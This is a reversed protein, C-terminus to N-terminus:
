GSAPTCKVRGCWGLDVIRQQNIGQINRNWLCSDSADCTPKTDYLSCYGAYYAPIGVAARYWSTYNGNVFSAIEQDDDTRQLRTAKMCYQDISSYILGGCNSDYQCERMCATEDAAWGYWEMFPRTPDARLIECLSVDHLARRFLRTNVPLWDPLNSPSRWGGSPTATPSASRISRSPMFSPTSSDAAAPSSTRHTSPSSTPVSTPSSTPAIIPSSTPGVTSAPIPSASPADTTDFPSVSPSQSPSRLSPAVSPGTSPSSSPSRVFPAVTAEESPTLSPSMSPMGSPALTALRICAPALGRFQHLGDPLIVPNCSVFLSCQKRAGHWQFGECNTINMCAAGCFENIKSIKPDVDIVSHIFQTVDRESGCTFRVGHYVHVIPCAYATYAVVLSLLLLYM